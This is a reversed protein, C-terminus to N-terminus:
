KMGFNKLMKGKRKAVFINQFFSLDLPSTKSLVLLSCLSEFTLQIEKLKMWDQTKVNMM